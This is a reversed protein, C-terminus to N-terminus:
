RVHVTYSQYKDSIGVRGCKAPFKHIKAQNGARECKVSIEQMKTNYYAVYSIHHSAIHVNFLQCFLTRAGLFGGANQVKLTPM